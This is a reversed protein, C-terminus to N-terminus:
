SIPAYFYRVTGRGERGGFPTYANVSKRKEGNNILREKGHGQDIGIGLGIGYEMYINCM